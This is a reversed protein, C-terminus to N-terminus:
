SWWAREQEDDMARRAKRVAGSASAEPVGVRWWGGYGHTATDPLVKVDIVSSPGDEQSADLAAKLEDLTAARYGRAGVADALAAFDVRLPREDRGVFRTGLGKLGYDTQLRHISGYGQNDFVVVTIPTHEQLSTLLESHMLLFSGDGVLGYVRRHPEAWKAGLAGAVEYGMCSFGYELHYAGEARCQWLRHLDGPLSGAAAVIIDESDLWQNLAGVVETQTLGEAQRRSYQQVVEGEWEAKLGQIEQVTYESRYPGDQLDQILSELGMRADGVMALGGLKHADRRNVNLSAVVVEPNKFATKSSTTFDTLRTGVALIFDAAAAVRNGPGTGTVGVAGLNWPHDSRIAGKGAQTEVFPIHFTEALAMVANEAAAYKVGGGVIMVPRKKTKLVRLVKDREVSSVPPAPIELVQPAFFREPYDWAQAQVDQPLALTVAGTAAPDTLVRMAEPLSAMLQEPWAVRDWFVSVPKFADNVTLAADYPSELQQLVPDPQRDSFTDGPLLLVPLRNVTAGAAATVMNMAGPGISSTCAYIARRNRQKAFAAATHVMGQENRAPVFPLGSLGQELAEGLGLVNGHGFIGLVGQVFKQPAGPSEMYQADLYRLLAQAMTLRIKRTMM